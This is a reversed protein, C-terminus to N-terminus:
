ASATGRAAACLRAGGTLSTPTTAQSLCFKNELQYLVSSVSSQRHSNHCTTGGSIWHARSSASKAPVLRSSQVEPPAQQTNMLARKQCNM